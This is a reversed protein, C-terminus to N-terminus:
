GGSGSAFPAEPVVACAVREGEAARPAGVADHASAQVDVAPYEVAGRETAAVRLSAVGDAAVPGVIERPAKALDATEREVINRAGRHEGRGLQWTQHRRQKVSIAARRG